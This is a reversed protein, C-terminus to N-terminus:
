THRTCFLLINLVERVFSLEFLMQDERCWGPAIVVSGKQQLESGEGKPGPVLVTGCQCESSPKCQQMESSWVAHAFSVPSSSFWAKVEEGVLGVWSKVAVTRLTPSFACPASPDREFCEMLRLVPLLWQDRQRIKRKGLHVCTYIAQKEAMRFCPQPPAPLCPGLGFLGPERRRINSQSQSSGTLHSWDLFWLQWCVAQVHHPFLWLVACLIVEEPTSKVTSLSSPRQVFCDRSLFADLGYCLPFLSQWSSDNGSSHCRLHLCMGSPFQVQTEASDWCPDM